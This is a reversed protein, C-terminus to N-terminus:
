LIGLRRAAAIAATRSSVELKGFINTLHHRVTGQGIFLAEAVERDSLGDAVLVLIDRERRTLGAAIHSNRSQRAADAAEVAAVIAGAKEFWSDPNLTRGSAYAATFAEEGLAARAGAEAQDYGVQEFQYFRMGTRELEADVVGLLQAASEARGVEIAVRALGALPSQLFADGTEVYGALCARYHRAAEAFRREAVAFLGLYLHTAALWTREGALRYFEAAEMMTVRAQELEGQGFAVEGLEILVMGISGPDGIERWVALEEEYLAAATEWHDQAQEIRAVAHVVLARGVPDGVADWVALADQAFGTAAALDGARTSLEAAWRLAHGMTATPEPGSNAITQQLRARGERVHGRRYWYWGCATALRLCDEWTEGSCLWDLAARLNDDDAALRDLSTDQKSGLLAPAAREAFALYWAAHADRAVTGDNRATLQELGYERVTELM